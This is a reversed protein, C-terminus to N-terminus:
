GAAAEIGEIATKARLYAWTAGTVEVRHFGGLAVEADVVVPRYSDDRCLTSGPKPRETALVTVRRGVQRQFSARTTRQKLLTLEGSREKAVPYPVQDDMGAARTHPRPSFRTINVVEPALRELLEMTARHDDDSEGPFGCIVDTSLMLEPYRSRFTEVVRWFDELSHDRGMAELVPQSGSQIPLHLFRYTRRDSWAEALERSRHAAIAPNLMGVRLRFEGELIALAALLEELSSGMDAGYAANDQSTLYLERSGSDLAARARAVIQEISRSRVRGRARLTACYTCHGLCGIAVPLIATVPSAEEKGSPGPSPLEAEPRGILVELGELDGPALLPVEPFRARMRTRDATAMCGAIVVGQGGELLSAIRHEMRDATAQIVTCTGIVVTDAEEPRETVTHGLERAQHALELTEGQNATCGYGEFHLSM